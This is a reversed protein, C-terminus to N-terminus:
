IKPWRKEMEELAKQAVDSAFNVIDQAGGRGASSEDIQAMIADVFVDSYFDKARRVEAQSPESRRPQDKLFRSMM